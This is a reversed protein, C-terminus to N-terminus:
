KVECSPRISNKNTWGLFGEPSKLFRPGKTSLTLCTDAANAPRTLAAPMLGGVTPRVPNGAMSYSSYTLIRLSILITINVEAPRIAANIRSTTRLKRQATSIKMGIPSPTRHLKPRARKVTPWRVMM